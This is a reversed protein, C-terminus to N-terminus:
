DTQKLREKRPPTMKESVAKDRVDVAALPVDADSVIRSKYV